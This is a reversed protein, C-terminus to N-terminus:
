ELHSRVTLQSAQTCHVHTRTSLKGYKGDDKAYGSAHALFTFLGMNVVQKFNAHKTRQHVIIQALAFNKQATRPELATTGLSKAMTVCRVHIYKERLM